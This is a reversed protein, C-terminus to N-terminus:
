AKCHCTSLFYNACSWFFQVRMNRTILSIMNFCILWDHRMFIQGIHTQPRLTGFWVCVLRKGWSAELDTQGVCWILIFLHLNTYLRASIPPFVNSWMASSLFYKLLEVADDNTSFICHLWISFLLNISPQLVPRWQVQVDTIYFDCWGLVIWHGHTNWTQKTQLLRPLILSALLLFVTEFDRQPKWLLILMQHTYIIEWQPPDKRKALKDRNADVSTANAALVSHGAEYCLWGTFLCAERWLLREIHLFPM